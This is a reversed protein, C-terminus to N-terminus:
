YVPDDALSSQVVTKVLGYRKITKSILDYFWQPSTPSVYICDILTNLDVKIMKGKGRHSDDLKKLVGRIEKEHEFSKRKYLFALYPDHEPIYENNYDVYQVTGIEAKGHLVAELNQFTSQICVAEDSKSYLEWMAASEYDSVHWCNVAVEAKLNQILNPLTDQVGDNKHILPRLKKNLKSFSGEFPDDLSKVCSFFLGQEELMSLFKTFDMYRWIKINTDDPARLAPHLKRSYKALGDKRAQLALQYAGEEGYKKISFTKNVQKGDGTPWHAQWQLRQYKHGKSTYTHSTRNVGMIGSKNRKNQARIGSLISETTPHELYQSKVADRFLKAEILSQEKGGHDSDYFFHQIIKGGRKVRVWWGYQGVNKGPRPEQDIRAINILDKSKAKNPFFQRAM